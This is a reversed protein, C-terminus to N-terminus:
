QAASLPVRHYNRGFYVLGDGGNNLLLEQVQCFFVSHTGVDSISAVHCGFICLADSLAPVGNGLTTWLASGFREDMTVTRDAFRKSLEQHGGTLVNVCLKGNEAIMANMRSSRNVCVLLSAPDDSVSCVASATIGHRGAAGDTTVINVAAGLRSMATRFHASDIM